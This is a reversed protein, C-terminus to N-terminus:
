SKASDILVVTNHIAKFEINERVMFLIQSVFKIGVLLLIKSRM